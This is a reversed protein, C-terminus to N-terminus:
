DGSRRIKGHKAKSCRKLRHRMGAVEKALGQMNSVIRIKEEFPLAALERRREQKAHFLRRAVKQLARDSGM